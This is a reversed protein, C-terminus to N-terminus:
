PSWGHGEATIVLFTIFSPNLLVKGPSSPNKMTPWHAPAVTPKLVTAMIPLFVMSSIHLISPFFNTVWRAQNRDLM